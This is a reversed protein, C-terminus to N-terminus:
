YSYQNLAEISAVKYETNDIEILNEFINNPWYYKEKGLLEPSFYGHNDKKVLFIEIMVRNKVFARKYMKHKPQIEQLDEYKVLLQDVNNLNKGLYILDIDKHSRPSIIGLLEKAWGGFIWTEVKNKELFDIISTLFELNNQEQKKAM